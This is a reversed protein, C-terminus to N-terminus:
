PLLSNGEMAPGTPVGLANLITPALDLLRASEGRFPRNMFLVGPVLAPDIIHDGSWAKVNNEFLGESVGGMSSSWSIRYGKAFQVILDPADDLFPGSYLEERPVARHIAVDGREKDVLRLLGRAIAAKLGAAEEADVIGESERGRLNLYLGGLGLAYAKTRRWDVNKLLDGAEEGPRIGDRLHLLGNELLWSNLHFGRRFSNFGHDSLAMVLTHDDAHEMAQGVMSDARRYHEEIVGAWRAEPVRGRNAPHDPERFRWFMHQVRDPTDFLCYFLGEDFRGLEHLMMAERERWAIECQDLFAGEDLRNNNLAAHCEVMGTTHYTGIDKALEGSFEPPSSIPFVPVEPSFNVPSAYLQLEPELQILYFRVIGRVAQLLGTKFKVELWDSWQGERILLEGPNGLSRLVLQRSTRDPSLLIDFTLDRGDRGSRPGIVHTAFDGRDDAHVPVVIEAEGATMEPRTTYFVSTGLGGRLDPVGMGSLMRGRLPDPPYTCPCRIVASSIGAGGLLDWLAQGRRLNVVRPPLFANKQEYRNLALEPRYTKPNRRLFDFIGHGGPNVGTAFTSWAVPTQAPSTTAVRSYGGLDKLKSLNPLEGAAMMPEVIGPELGDLGIVLVSKLRRM